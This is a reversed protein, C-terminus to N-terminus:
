SCDPWRTGSSAWSCPLPSDDGCAPPPSRACRPDGGRDARADPHRGPRALGAVMRGLDATRRARGGRDAPDRRPLDAALGVPRRRDGPQRGREPRASRHRYAGSSSMPTAQLRALVVDVRVACGSCWRAPSSPWSRGCCRVRQVRAVRRPPRRQCRRRAVVGCRRHSADLVGPVVGTLVTVFPSSAPRYWSCRAPRDM